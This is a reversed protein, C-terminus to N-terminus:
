VGCSDACSEYFYEVEITSHFSGHTKLIQRIKDKTNSITKETAKKKMRIHITFIHRVSDLSWVHFDCIEMVSNMKLIESKISPLDIDNPAKQIFLLFSNKINAFVRVLIYLTIAISLIPDLIPLYYFHMIIGVVLVAVWGLVDELLHLSLVRSNLGENKSLRVIALGNVIVGPIALLIMGNVNIEAPSLLRPFVTFLIFISGALLVLSSVLASLLPLRSLGYTYTEDNTQANSYKESFYSFSLIITDGLDHIADSLIAMSNTWLAGIIELITFGFNLAVALGINKLHEHHHHQHSHNHSHM